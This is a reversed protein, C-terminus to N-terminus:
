LRVDVYIEARLDRLLREEFKEGRLRERIQSRVDDLTFEGAERLRRVKVVAFATERESLPLELPGLVEGEGAARLATAYGSPLQDLQDMPLSLSDPLNLRQSERSYDSISAGAEVSRRIEEARERARRLDADTVDAAILIHHIKREAGRAREVKIIHAGFPTEVVGSVQGPRLRFAVDEFEEVLGDGRRHWGLEGGRQRSGPDHSFRRALEAFDEGDRLRQLIGEAEDRAVAKASDSPESFIIAQEFTVTAPRDGLQHRQQEFFERVESEDVSIFRAQQRKGQIYRELLLRQRLQNRLGSRYQTMSMGQAEVAERLRAETGFRRVQEDWTEQLAQDVRAESVTVLTDAEAAQVLLLQNVLGELVERELARLQAPDEPLETGEAQLQFLQEQIQSHVIASDGVVAVIRDVVEEELSVGTEFAPEQASALSAGALLIPVVLSFSRKM